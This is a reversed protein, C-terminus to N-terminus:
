IFIYNISIVSNLILERERERERERTRVKTSHLCFYKFHIIRKLAEFMKRRWQSYPWCVNCYICLLIKNSNNHYMIDMPTRNYLINYRNAIIYEINYVIATNSSVFTVSQTLNVAIVGKTSRPCYDLRSCSRVSFIKQYIM